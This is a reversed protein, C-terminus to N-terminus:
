SGTASVSGGFSITKAPSNDDRGGWLQVIYDTNASLGTKVAAVDIAGNESFWTGGGLESDYFVFASASQSIDSAGVNSYSGGVPKYQWRLDAGFTGANAAAAAIISLSGGFDIQGASGTKVTMEDSLAVKTTGAVSNLSSDTVTTGGGASGSPAAADIRTVPLRSTITIGDRLSTVVIETLLPIVAATPITVVGATVTVTAGTIAGQSAVAWTADSSQDTLGAMRKLVVSKPLQGSDLTGIHNATFTFNATSPDHRATYPAEFAVDDASHVRWSRNAGYVTRWFPPSVTEEKSSKVQPWARGQAHLTMVPDASFDARTVFLRGDLGVGAQALCPLALARSVELLSTQDSLVLNIDYPADQDLVTLSDQDILAADVGALSALFSIVAGTRRPTAGSVAHGKVDGTIVGFQPAGLRVLGEALCTGWHGRPIAAAVLAAYSAYNGTSAGFDSAREYLKTVAEIPGYGSFQYVSNAADILLPEVNEAWGLVIPKPRGKLDTLGEAGGTGAYARSLLNAAFPEQDVEATISLGVGEGSYSKVTGRFVVPWAETWDPDGAVIEVAAGMWAFRDINTWTHRAISLNIPFTASGPSIVSAFAGDFLGIRLVPARSLAPEWAVGEYRNVKRGVVHDNYSSLRVEVRSGTVPDLPTIRVLAARM